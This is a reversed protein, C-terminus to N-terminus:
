LSEDEEMGKAILFGRAREAYPYRNVLKWFRPGHNPEELHALEHVIVYDRVWHPMQALRHSIRIKGERSHCSGFRKSQNTAWEISKFRLRGSFYRRNLSQAIKALDVEKNLRGQLQRREVRKRINAIIEALRGEDIREPAYVILKGDVVRAQVTKRRRRSRRIEVKM